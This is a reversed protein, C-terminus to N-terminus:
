WALGQVASERERLRMHAATDIVSERNMRMILAVSFPPAEVLDVVIAVVVIKHRLLLPWQDRILSKISSLAAGHICTMCRSYFFKSVSTFEINCIDRRPVGYEREGESEKPGLRNRNGIEVERVTRACM